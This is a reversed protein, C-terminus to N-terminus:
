VNWILGCGNYGNTTGHGTILDRTSERWKLCTVQNIANITKEIKLEQNNWFVIRHDSSGGGSALLDVKWPCWQLTKAASHHFHDSFYVNENRLDWIHVRGDNSGSAVNYNKMSIGCVETKHTFVHLITPDKLRIDNHVITKDKSGSM